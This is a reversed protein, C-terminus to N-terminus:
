RSRLYHRHPNFAAAPKSGQVKAPAVAPASVTKKAASIIELEIKGINVEISSNIATRIQQIPPMTQVPRSKVTEFKGDNASTHRSPPVTDSRADTRAITGNDQHSKDAEIKTWQTKASAPRMISDFSADSFATVPEIDENTASAQADVRLSNRKSHVLDQKATESVTKTKSLENEVVSNIKSVKTESMDILSSQRPQLFRPQTVLPNSVETSDAVLGKDIKHQILGPANSELSTTVLPASTIIHEPSGDITRPSDLSASTVESNATHPTTAMADGAAITEITQEGWSSETHSSPNDPRAVPANANVGSRQALRSFYRNM